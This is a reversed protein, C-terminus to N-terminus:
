CVRRRRRAVLGAVSLLALAGPAPVTAFYLNDVTSYVPSPPSTSVSISVSSISAGTVYFGIFNSANTTEGVYSSGDSLQVEIFAPVIGFGANTGFINGAVGQVGPAMTFVLPTLHVFTSLYGSAAVLGDNAGATWTTPGTSGTLSSYFGSYSNFTETAVTAGDAAAYANWASSDITFFLVSAQACSASILACSAVFLSRNFM